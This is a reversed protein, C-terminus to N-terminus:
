NRPTPRSAEPSRRATPVGLALSRIRQRLKAEVEDPLDLGTLQEDIFDDLDAQHEPTPSATVPAPLLLYRALLVRAPLVHSRLIQPTQVEAKVLPARGPRGPATAVARHRRRRQRAREHAEDREGEDGM